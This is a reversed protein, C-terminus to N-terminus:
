VSLLLHCNINKEAQHFTLEGLCFEFMSVLLGGFGLDKNFASKVDKGELRKMEMLWKDVFDEPEADSDFTRQRKEIIPTIFEVITNVIDSVEKYGTYNKLIPWKAM